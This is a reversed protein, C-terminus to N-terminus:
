NNKREIRQVKNGPRTGSPRANSTGPAPRATPQGCNPCYKWSPVLRIGCTRCPTNPFQGILIDNWFISGQDMPMLVIGIGDPMIKLNATDAITQIVVALPADYIASNFVVDRPVRRDVRIPFRTQQSIRAIADVIPIPRDKPVDLTVLRNGPIIQGYGMPITGFGNPIPGNPIPVVGIGVPGGSEVGPKAVPTERSVRYVKGELRIKLPPKASEAIRRYVEAFTLYRIKLDVPGSIDQDITYEDGSKNFLKKLLDTIEAGDATVSIRRNGQPDKDEETIAIGRNLNGQETTDSASATAFPITLLLLALVARISQM